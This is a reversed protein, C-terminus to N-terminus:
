PNNKYVYSKNEEVSIIGFKRKFPTKKWWFAIADSFDSCSTFEHDSQWAIKGTAMQLDTIKLVRMKTLTM